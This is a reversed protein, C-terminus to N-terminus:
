YKTMWYNRKQSEIWQSRENQDPLQAIAFQSLREAAHFFNLSQDADPYSTEFFDWIWPADIWL